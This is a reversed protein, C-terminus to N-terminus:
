FCFCLLCITAKGGTEVYKDLDGLDVCFKLPCVVITFAQGEGKLNSVKCSM